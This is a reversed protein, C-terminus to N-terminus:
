RLYLCKLPNRTWLIAASLIWRDIMRCRRQLWLAAYSRGKARQLDELSVCLGVYEGFCRGSSLIRAASVMAHAKLSAEAGPRWVSVPVDHDDSCRGRDCGPVSIDSSSWPGWPWKLQCQPSNSVFHGQVQGQQSCTYGSILLINAFRNLTHCRNVGLIPM